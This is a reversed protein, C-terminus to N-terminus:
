VIWNVRRGLGQPPRFPGTNGSDAAPTVLGRPLGRSGLPLETDGPDKQPVRGWANRQRVGRLPAARHRATRRPNLPPSVPSVWSVPGPLGTCYDGAGVGPGGRGGCPGLDPLWM